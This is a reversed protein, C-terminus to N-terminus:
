LNIPLKCLKHVSRQFVGTNTKVSAVRAIGDTGPHLETVRGMKWQQPATNDEKLVVLDDVSLSIAGNQKWKTLQQLSTLYEHSWRQWFHQSIKQLVQYHKLRNTPVETYDKEPVSLLADGILFHGPTLATLDTPDESMPTIPRSNMIAEIRTFLTMLDEFTLHMNGIMKTAHYKATKVAAEWLGGHHPSNPPIFKWSINNEYLFKSFSCEKVLNSLTEIVRQLENRTGVFNTANDSYITKCLGRRSVFRTLTSLFSASTLDSVLELHVAKTAFCVFICLYAKVIARNRLRGDKILFPGAFDVGTVYFPRYQTVRDVPLDGMQRIISSPKNRFCIICGRLVSRIVTRGNLPWFRQRIAYLLAQAGIHIQRYHEHLIILRTLAHKAPLVIQFKTDVSLNAKSLRGGVRILRNSDLFPKLSLLKSIKPLPKGLQLAAMENPFAQSQVNWLIAKMAEELEFGSLDGLIRKDPQRSCNHRFRLCLAIVRKLRYLSSYKEIANFDNSIMVFTNLKVKRREPIKDLQFDSKPWDVCDLQLWGPGNWWLEHHALTNPDVGRSVLDAPNEKSSVHHWQNFETHGQIEAVRNAVFLKWTNPPSALWSLVITSDTWFFANSIPMRVANMVKRYLTVLLVAGCLELRPLSVTKIPAVRSKACLLRVAVEGNDAVCKLYICAGYAAESSDSFGHLEIYKSNPYISLRPIRILEIKSLQSSFKLWLRAFDPPVPDDWSLKLQWLRQMIIKARVVIPSVLGLPDFLKSIASLIARKTLNIETPQLFETKYCFVDLEAQWWLGLTKRVDDDTINYKDNPSFQSRTLVGVDNSVWKRLEFGYKNLTTSLEHKLDKAGQLTSAGSLLDDVYFDTKIIHSIEPLDNEHDIAAQVLCRVALYAASSTGYTVTNLRFHQVPKSPDNRWVIRQYDRQNEQVLVQRYMKAIDATIAYAHKRFRVLISFLDEQITPGVLLKSNLSIGNDSKCSGDFVVRLKTTSSHANIVGHHPLYFTQTFETSQVEKDDLRSMHGLSEYERMFEHYLTKFDHNREFKREMAYLRKSANDISNGFSGSNSKIPLTVAFRGTTDRVTTSIFNNECFQDNSSLPPTGTCEDILWFKELNYRLGEDIAVNCVAKNGEIVTSPMPGSVVWGLLTDQLLPFGPGLKIQDSKLLDFFIEAGLLMDVTDHKNFNVDALKVGDPIKLDRADFENTPLRETIKDLILFTLKTTFDGISSKIEAKVRYLAKTCSQGIGAIPINTKVQPHGLKHSLKRTIVNPQSGSDLLVRCNHWNGLIDKVQVRATSLIVHSREYNSTHVREALPLEQKETNVYSMTTIESGTNNQQERNVNSIVNIDSQSQASSDVHLLTNHRKSCKKCGASLCEQNSHNARLCNTCLKLKKIESLRLAVSLSKFKECFYVSHSGKCYYCLYSPRAAVNSVYKKHQYSKSPKDHKGQKEFNIQSNFKETLNSKDQKELLQCWENLFEVLDTFKPKKINKSNLHVEWQNQTSIDLKKLILYILLTDWQDVPEGLAALSRVHAQIDDTLERLHNKSGIKVPSIEVLARVHNRIIIQTDEFRSKLLDWAMIYNDNTVKISKIVKAAVGTLASTLYYFKRINDISGDDHVLAVFMDRFHEWKEYDGDFKPLDMIPLRVNSKSSRSNEPLSQISIPQYCEVIKSKAFGFIDYFRDEFDELENKGAESPDLLEIQNQILEFREREPKIDDLRSELQLLKDSTFRDLFTKFRTLKSKINAREKKLNDLPEAM